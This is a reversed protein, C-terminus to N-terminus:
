ANEYKEKLEFYTGLVKKETYIFVFPLNSHKDWYCKGPCVGCNGDPKM